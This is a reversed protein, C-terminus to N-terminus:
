KMAPSAYSAVVNKMYRAIRMPLNNSLQLVMMKTNEGGGLREEKDDKSELLMYTQMVSATQRVQAFVESSLLHGPHRCREIDAGLM